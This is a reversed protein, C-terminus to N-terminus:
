ISSQTPRYYFAPETSPKVTIRRKDLSEHQEHPLLPLSNSLALFPVSSSSADTASVIDLNVAIITKVDHQRRWGRISDENYLLMGLTAVLARRGFYSTCLLSYHCPEDSVLNAVSWAHSM